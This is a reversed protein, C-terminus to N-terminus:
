SSPVSRPYQRSRVPSRSRSTCDFIHTQYLGTSCSYRTRKVSTARRSQRQTVTKEFTANVMREQLGPPVDSRRRASGVEDNTSRASTPHGIKAKARKRKRAVAQGCPVAKRVDSNCTDTGSCARAPAGVRTARGAGQCMVAYCQVAARERPSSM